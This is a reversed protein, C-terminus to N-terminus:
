RPTRPGIIPDITYLAIYTKPRQRRQLASQLSNGHDRHAVLVAVCFAAVVVRVAVVAFYTAADDYQAGPSTEM